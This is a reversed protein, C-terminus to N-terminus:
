NDKKGAMQWFYLEHASALRFLAKLKEKRAADFGACMEECYQTWVRCSDKYYESTYDLVLPTYYTDNLVAPYKKVLQEFVYNYGLMCPMVAMMIEPIDEKEATQLLFETYARCEPKKDINEVDADTMQNDSLYKLRTINEGDNVYGLVSYFVQMEKLTRSKYIAMAYAKLYDRLYISDQIIYDYFQKRDLTGEGLEKLFTEKAAAEWLPMSDAIVEEMFTM